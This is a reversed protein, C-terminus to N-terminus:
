GNPNNIEDLRALHKEISESTYRGTAIDERVEALAAALECERLYQYQGAGMVVLHEQNDVAIAAETQGALVSQIASIGFTKLDYNSITNMHILAIFVYNWIIVCRAQHLAWLFSASERM